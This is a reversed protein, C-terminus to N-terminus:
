KKLKSIKNIDIELPNNSSISFGKSKFSQIGQNQVTKYKETMDVYYYNDDLKILTMLYNFNKLSPSFKGPHEITSVILPIAEINLNRLMAILILNLDASNGEKKDWIKKLSNSLFLTSKEDWKINDQIYSVVSNIRVDDDESSNTISKVYKEFFDIKKLEKGLYNHNLLYNNLDLWTFPTPKIPLFAIAALYSGTLPIEPYTYSILEFELKDPESINQQAPPIDRAKWVINKCEISYNSQSEHHSYSDNIINPDTIDSKLYVMTKILSSRISTQLEKKQYNIYKPEHINYKYNNPISAIFESQIVPIDKQFSWTIFDDHFNSTIKYSYEIISGIKVNPLQFSISKYHWDKQIEVINDKVLDYKKIEDGELNYTIGAIDSITEDMRDQKYLQIDVFRRNLGSSNLIKVKTHYEFVIKDDIDNDKFFAKGYEYIIIADYSSLHTDLQNNFDDKSIKWFSENIEQSFCILSNFIIIFFISSLTCKKKM